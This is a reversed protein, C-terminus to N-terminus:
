RTAGPKWLVDARGDDNARRAWVFCADSLRNLYRILQPNWTRVQDAATAASLDREGIPVARMSRDLQGRFERCIGRLKGLPRDIRSGRDAAARQAIQRCINCIGCLARRIKFVGDHTQM